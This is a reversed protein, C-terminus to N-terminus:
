SKSEKRKAIVGKEFGLIKEYMSPFWRVIRDLLKADAGILIRRSGKAMGALIVDAAQDATTKAQKNFDELIKSKSVHLSSIKASNTINTKIGGPHVCHVSVNTGAMEMKLSETFGRVAFKSSNYASQLPLSLLGFLSSVNVIHAKPSKQLYPLFANTGYVVGWFNINMLWHFDELSQGEVSDILSVGANNFLMDVRSFESFVHEAFAIFAKNDSVDLASIICNVGLHEVQQQVALLGDIDKDALALHCGQTALKLALSKGIGSAAGTVVAVNDKYNNSEKSM